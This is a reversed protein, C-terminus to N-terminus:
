QPLNWVIGALWDARNWLLKGLWQAGNLTLDSVWAIKGWTWHVMGIWICQIGTSVKGLGLCLVNRGCGTRYNGGYRRAGPDSSNLTFNRM